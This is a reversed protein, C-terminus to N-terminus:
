WQQETPWSQFWVWTVEACYGLGLVGSGGSPRGHTVCLALNWRESSLFGPGKVDPPFPLNLQLHPPPPLFTILVLLLALSKVVTRAESPNDLEVASVILIQQLGSQCCCLPQHLSWAWWDSPGILSFGQARLSVCVYLYYIKDSGMVSFFCFCFVACLKKQIGGETLGWSTASRGRLLRV